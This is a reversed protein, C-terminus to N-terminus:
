LTSRLNSRTTAAVRERGFVFRTARKLNVSKWGTLSNEIFAQPSQGVGALGEACRCFAGFLAQSKVGNVLSVHVGLRQFLAWRQGYELHPNQSLEYLLPTTIALERGGPLCATSRSAAKLILDTDWRQTRQAIPTPEFNHQTSLARTGLNRVGQEEAGAMARELFGTLERRLDRELSPQNLMGIVPNYAGRLDCHGMAWAAAVAQDGVGLEMWCALLKMEPTGVDVAMSRIGPRMLLASVLAVQGVVEGALANIAGFVEADDGPGRAIHEVRAKPSALALLTRQQEPTSRPELLLIDALKTSDTREIVQAYQVDSLDFAMILARLVSERAEAGRLVRTVDAPKRGSWLVDCVEGANQPLAYRNGRELVAARPM